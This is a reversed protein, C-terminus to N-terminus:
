FPMPVNGGTIRNIREQMSNRNAKAASIATEIDEIKAAADTLDQLADMLDDYYFDIISELASEANEKDRTISSYAERFRAFVDTSDEVRNKMHAIEDRVPDFETHTVGNPQVNDLSAWDSHSGILPLVDASLLSSGIYFHDGSNHDPITYTPTGCYHQKHPPEFYDDQDLDELFEDWYRDMITFGLQGLAPALDLFNTEVPDTGRTEGPELYSDLVLSDYGTMTNINSPLNIVEEEDNWKRLIYPVGKAYDDRDACTIFGTDLYSIRNWAGIQNGHALRYPIGSQVHQVAIKGRDQIETGSPSPMGVSSLSGTYPNLYETGFPVYPSTDTWQYGSFVQHPTFVLKTDLDTPDFYVDLPLPEYLAFSGALGCPTDSHHGDFVIEWGRGDQETPKVLQLGDGEIDTLINIIKTLNDVGLVENIPDGRQFTKLFAM